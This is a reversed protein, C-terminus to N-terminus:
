PQQEKLASFRVSANTNYSLTPMICKSHVGSGRRTVNLVVDRVDVDVSKDDLIPKM